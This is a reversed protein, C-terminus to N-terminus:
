PTEERPEVDRVECWQLWEFRRGILEYSGECYMPVAAIAVSGWINVYYTTVLVDLRRDNPAHVNPRHCRLRQGDLPGGFAIRSDSRWDDFAVRLKRLRRRLVLRGKGFWDRPTM